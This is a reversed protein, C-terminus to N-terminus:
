SNPPPNDRNKRREISELTAKKRCQICARKGVQGVYTNELTYPHGRKCSTKIAEWHTGHKVSDELNERPSGWRLNSEHNNTVDGDNHLVWPKGGPAPGHFASCVLRHGRLDWVQTQHMLCYSLYGDKDYKPKLVRGVVKGAGGLVRKIEGFESVEYVGEFGVVPRWQVETTM